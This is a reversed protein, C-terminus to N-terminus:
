QVVTIKVTSGSAAKAGAAPNQAVVTGVPGGGTQLIIQAKFGAATLANVANAQTM